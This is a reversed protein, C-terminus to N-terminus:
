QELQYDSTMKSKEKGIEGVDFGPSPGTLEVKLKFASM